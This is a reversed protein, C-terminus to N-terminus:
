IAQLGPARGGRAEPSVCHGDWRLPGAPSPRLPLTEKTQAAAPSTPPPLARGPAAGLAEERASARPAWLSSGPSSNPFQLCPSSQPRPPLHCLACQPGSSPFTGPQPASPTGSHWLGPCPNWQLSPTRIALIPSGTGSPSRQMREPGQIQFGPLTPPPFKDTEGWVLVARGRPRQKRPGTDDGRLRMSKKGGGLRSLEPFSCSNPTPSPLLSVKTGVTSAPRMTFPWPAAHGGLGGCVPLLGERPVQGRVCVVQPGWEALWCPGGWGM